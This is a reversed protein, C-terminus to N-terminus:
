QHYKFNHGECTECNGDDDVDRIDDLVYGNLFQGRSGIAPIPETPFPGAIRDLYRLHFRTPKVNTISGLRNKFSHRILQKSEKSSHYQLRVSDIIEAYEKDMPVRFFAEMWLLADWIRVPTPKWADDCGDKKTVVGFRLKVFMLGCSRYARASLTKVRKERDQFVRSFEGCTQYETFSSNSDSEPSLESTPIEEVLKSPDINCVLVPYSTLGHQQVHEVHYLQQQKIDTKSSTSTSNSVQV